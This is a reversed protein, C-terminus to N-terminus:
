RNLKTHFTKRTLIISSINIKQERTDVLITMSKVLEDKDKDTYKYFDIM